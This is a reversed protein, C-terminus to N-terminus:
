EVCCPMRGVDRIFAQAALKVVEYATPFVHITEVLDEIRYRHKIMLSAAVIFESAHPALVHIGAITNSRPDIVIKALGHEVGMIGSRATLKFGVVRCSCMGLSEVLRQETSGVYAVEPDTFVVVPTTEYDISEKSGVAINKAAVAGEKAALTELFAPKPTGAVDGAAYIRPNSTRLDMSVRIFGRSDLDVGALELGLGETNPRRGTSILVADYEEEISGRPSLIKAVARSGKRSFGAVKSKTYIKVGEESLIEALAKSIEPEVGPLPRDLIEVVDVESGLRSFAQALELGIAGSGIVLMKGPLEEISWITDSTHYPIESLGEIRPISPSSGTAVIFYEGYIDIDGDASSVLVRNPSKFRASGIYLDVNYHELLKEYKERRMDEIFSRLSKIVNPFYIKPSPIEVGRASYIRHLKSVKATEILYKSPVCGVNVCTGGIPGRTVMAIRKDYGMLERYKVVAAFGAAGGGIVVLDYKKEGAFSGMAPTSGIHLDCCGM